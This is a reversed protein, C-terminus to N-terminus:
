DVAYCSQILQFNNNNNNSHDGIVGQGNDVSLVFQNAKTKVLDKVQCETHELSQCTQVMFINIARQVSATQDTISHGQYVYGWGTPNSSLLSILILKM